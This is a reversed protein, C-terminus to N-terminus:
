KGEKLKELTSSNPYDSNELFEEFLAEVDAKERRSIEWKGDSLLEPAFREIALSLWEEFSSCVDFLHKKM